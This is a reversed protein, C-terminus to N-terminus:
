AEMQVTRPLGCVQDGCTLLVDVGLPFRAAVAGWQDRFGAPLGAVALPQRSEIGPGRLTVLPGSSLSAVEILLTASRDPYAPDGADCSELDPMDFGAPVAVFRAKGVADALPAGCHFRLFGRADEGIGPPLWLPTDGDALALLLATMAPSLGAPVGCPADIGVARGPHAMAHLAARFAAQAGNVPDDFGPLLALAEASAPPIAAHASM